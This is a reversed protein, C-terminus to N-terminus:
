SDKHERRTLWGLLINLLFLKLELEELFSSKTGIVKPSNIGVTILSVHWFMLFNLTVDFSTSQTGLYTLIKISLLMLADIICSSKTCIFLKLVLLVEALLHDSIAPDKEFDHSALNPILSGSSLM